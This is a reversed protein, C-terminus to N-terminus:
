ARERELAGPWGHGEASLTGAALGRELREGLRAYLYPYRYSLYVRRGLSLGADMVKNREGAVRRRDTVRIRLCGWTQLHESYSISTSGAM